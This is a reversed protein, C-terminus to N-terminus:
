THFPFYIHGTIEAADFSFAKCNALYATMYVTFTTIHQVSITCSLLQLQMGSIRLSSHGTFNHRHCQSELDHV